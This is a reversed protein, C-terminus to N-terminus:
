GAFIQDTANTVWPAGDPGVAISIAGGPVASWGSGTWHYISYGGPVTGTGVVWVSGDAGVAVDTAAGPYVVWGTGAWHYIHNTANTVWPSGDPGVAINIAGGPVVSWGSGTWHYISYGGPVRGTGVVWVSGDAGVAVDTAAGPYVVWGTGAWHYIHNTANTVWPSGDPGVAISIAGGPVASWSSGTWHYISYGGPVTGTGVIWVSGDAGVAVDSAGGPLPTWVLARGYAFEILQQYRGNFIDQDGPFVGHDAFQWIVYSSWSAPLPYPSNGYNAIALGDIFGTADGTCTVWWNTTTYVVPRAGTLLLYEGVFSDIWGIM